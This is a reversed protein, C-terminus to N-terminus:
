GIQFAIGTRNVADSMKRGEEITLSAPKQLYIDKGAMAADICQKAHWHDPTSVVVADIDKNDLLDLYNQYTEVGDYAKGSKKAYFDNVLKKGDNMRNIDVDSVAMIKASEHKLIEPIDHIRSIRGVG